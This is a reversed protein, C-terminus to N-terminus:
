KKTGKKKKSRYQIYNELMGTYPENGKWTNTYIAGDKYYPYYGLSNDSIIGKYLTPHVPSKLYRGTKYNRSPWHGDQGPQYGLDRAQVFDYDTPYYLYPDKGQDWFFNGSQKYEKNAKLKAKKLLNDNGTLVYEELYPQITSHALHETKGPTSYAKDSYLGNSFIPHNTHKYQFAHSLEDTYGPNFKNLIMNNLYPIYQDREINNSLVFGPAGSKLYLKVQNLMADNFSVNSSNNDILQSTTNYLVNRVNKNPFTKKSLNLLRKDFYSPRVVVNDLQGADYYTTYGANDRTHYYQNVDPNYKKLFSIEQQDGKIPNIGAIREDKGDNWYWHGYKDYEKNSKKIADNLYQNDGTLVFKKLQPQIIKHAQHELSGKRSYSGGRGSLNNGPLVPHKIKNNYQFAHSLEEIIPYSFENNVTISNTFPNYHSRLLNFGIKKNLNISPSGSKQYLRILNLLADNYSLNKNIDWEPYSLEGAKQYIASRIDKDKFVNNSLKLLRKDFNTPKVIVDELEVPGYIGESDPERRWESDDIPTPLPPLWVDDKGDKFHLNLGRRQWFKQGYADKGFNNQPLLNLVNPLTPATISNYLKQRQNNIFQQQQAKIEENSPGLLTTPVAANITVPQKVSPTNIIIPSHKKADEYDQELDYMNVAYNYADPNAKKHTYAVKVLSDMGRLNRYYNALSDEYYGKQKLAKAYDQTSKAKLASSYRNHMLRIYDKVFDADSKYTTYTKGNWGVGGYNHQKRAVNSRGYNSEYALQRMVNYYATDGYGYRTLQQGVIPGLRRVFSSISDNGENKGSKYKHLIPYEEPLPADYPIPKTIDDTLEIDKGADYSNLISQVNADMQQQEEPTPENVQSNEGLNIGRIDKWYDAGNKWAEYREQFSKNDYKM